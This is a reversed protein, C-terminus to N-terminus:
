NCRAAFAGALDADLTEIIEVPAANSPEVDFKFTEVTANSEM